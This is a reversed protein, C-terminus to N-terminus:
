NDKQYIKTTGTGEFFVEDNFNLTVTHYNKIWQAKLECNNLADSDFVWVSKGKGRSGSPYYYYESGNNSYVSGGGTIEYGNFIYGPRTPTTASLYAPFKYRFETDYKNTKGDITGGNPDITLKYKQFLFSIKFESVTLYNTTCEKSTYWNLTEGNYM